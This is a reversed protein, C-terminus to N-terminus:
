WDSPEMFDDLESMSIIDRAQYRPHAASDNECFSSGALQSNVDCESFSQHPGDTKYVTNCTKDTDNVTDMYPTKEPSCHHVKSRQGIDPVTYKHIHTETVPQQTQQLIVPALTRHHPQYSQPYGHYGQFPALTEGAAADQSPTQQHANVHIQPQLPPQPRSTSKTSERVNLQVYKGTEPDFFTKMKVQVPVDVVFYQGSGLDQLVKRQTLPYSQPYTTSAVHYQTVPATHNAHHLTPSSHVDVIANPIGPHSTFGTAHPSAVPLSVPATAHASAVPLSSPGASHSSACSSSPPSSNLTHCPSSSSELRPIHVLSVPSSVHPSAVAHHSLLRVETSSSSPNSSMEQSRSDERVKSLEKKIRRTALRKAKLLAKESKPPVVPPKGLSRSVDSSFSCASEPRDGDYLGRHADALDVVSTTFSEVDESVTSIVSRSDDEDPAISRRTGPRHYPLPTSYNQSSPFTLTEKLAGLRSLGKDSHPTAASLRIKEQEEEAREAGMPSGVRFDGAFNKHFRPKVSKTFSSGRVTNDKVRFLSPKAGLAPSSTNSRPLSSAPSAPTHAGGPRPHPDEPSELGSPNSRQQSPLPSSLQKERCKRESEPSTIAYYQLADMRQAVQKEEEVQTTRDGLTEEEEERKEIRIADDTEKAERTGEKPTTQSEELFGTDEENLKKGDRPKVTAKVHQVAEREEEERQTGLWDEARQKESKREEMQQEAKEQEQIPYIMDDKPAEAEAERHKRKKEQIKFETQKAPRQEETRATRSQQEEETPSARGQQEQVARRQEEHSARTQEDQHVARSQQEKQFARREQAEQAARIQQEEQVARRQNEEQFARSRHKEQVARRQRQEETLAPKRKQDGMLNATKRQQEQHAATGRRDEQAARRQQGEQSLRKQQEEQHGREEEGHKLLQAKADKNIQKEEESQQVRAEEEIKIRRKETENINRVEQVTGIVKEKEAANVEKSQKANRGEEARRGAERQSDRRKKIENAISNREKARREVERQAERREEEALSARSNKIMHKIRVDEGRKEVDMGSPKEKELENARRQKTTDEHQSTLRNKRDEGTRGVTNKHRMDKKVKTPNTEEQASTLRSPGNEDFYPKTEGKSSLEEPNGLPNASDTSKPQQSTHPNRPRSVISSSSAQLDRNNPQHVHDVLRLSQTDALKVADESIQHKLHKTPLKNREQLHKTENDLSNDNTKEQRDKEGLKFMGTRRHEKVTIPFVLPKPEKSVKSSIETENPVSKEKVSLDQPDVTFVPRRSHRSQILPFFGEEKNPPFEQITYERDESVIVKLRAYDAIASIEPPHTSARQKPKSKVEPKEKVLTERTRNPNRLSQRERASQNEKHQKSNYIVQGAENLQSQIEPGSSKNSTPAEGAKRVKRNTDEDSISSSEGAKMKSQDMVSDPKGENCSEKSIATKTPIVGPLEATKLVADSADIDSTCNHSKNNAEAAGHVQFYDGEMLQVKSESMSKGSEDSSEPNGKQVQANDNNANVMNQQNSIKLSDAVKKEASVVSQEGLKDEVGDKMQKEDSAPSFGKTRDETYLTNAKEEHILSNLPKHNNAAVVNSPETTSRSPPQNGVMKLDDHETAAPVVRIAIRGIHVDSDTEGLPTEKYHHKASVHRHENGTLHNAPNTKYRSEPPTIGHRKDDLRLLRECDISGNQAPNMVVTTDDNMSPQTGQNMLMEAHGRNSDNTSNLGTTMLETIVHERGEATERIHTNKEESNNKVEDKKRTKGTENTCGKAEQATKHKCLGPQIDASREVPVSVTSLGGKEASPEQNHKERQTRRNDVNENGSSEQRFTTEAATFKEFVNDLIKEQTSTEQVNESYINMDIAAQAETVTPHADYVVIDEGKAEIVDSSFANGKNEETGSDTHCKDLESNSAEKQQVNLHKQTCDKMQGRSAPARRETLIIGTFEVSGNAVPAEAQAASDEHVTDCKAVKNETVVPKSSQTRVLSASLPPDEKKKKLHNNNLAINDKLREIQKGSIQGHDEEASGEKKPAQEKCKIPSKMASQNGEETGMTSSGTQKANIPTNEVYEHSKILEKNLVEKQSHDVFDSSTAASKVPITAPSPSLVSMAPATQVGPLEMQPKATTINSITSEQKKSVEQSPPRQRINTSQSGALPKNSTKTIFGDRMAFGREKMASIEKEAHAKIRSTLIEQKTQAREKLSLSRSDAVSDESQRHKPAAKDKDIINLKVQAEKKAGDEGTFVANRVKDSQEFMMKEKIKALEAKTKALETKVQEINDTGGRVQQAERIEAAPKAPSEQLDETLEPKAVEDKIQKLASPEDEEAEVKKDQSNSKQTENIQGEKVSEDEAVKTRDQEAKTKQDLTGELRIMEIQRSDEETQQTKVNEIRMQKGGLKEPQESKFGQRRGEETKTQKIKSQGTKESKALETKIHEGKLREEEANVHEDQAETIQKATIEERTNKKEDTEKEVSCQKKKTQEERCPDAQMETSQEGREEKGKKDKVREVKEQNVNKDQTLEEQAEDSEVKEPGTQGALILRASQVQSLEGQVDHEGSRESQSHQPQIHEAMAQGRVEVIQGHYRQLLDKNELAGHQQQGYHAPNEVTDNSFPANLGMQNSINFNVSETNHHATGDCVSKNSDAETFEIGATQPNEGTSKGRPSNLEEKMTGARECTQPLQPNEIDQSARQRWRHQSSVNSYDKKLGQHKDMNTFGRQATENIHQETKVQGELNERTQSNDVNRRPIESAAYPDKDRMSEANAAMVQKAPTVPLVDQELNQGNAMQHCPKFSTLGAHHVMESQMQFPQYTYESYNGRRETAPQSNLTASSSGPNHYQAAHQNSAANTSSSEELHSFLIEPDEFDPIDIVVDRAEQMSHQKAKQLTELGKFKSPSYTSKVRKRNDKLNFLLNTARTKYRSMRVDPTAGRSGARVPPHEVPQPSAATQQHIASTEVNHRGHVSPALPQSVNPLVPNLNNDFPVNEKGYFAEQQNTTMGTAINQKTMMKIKQQLAKVSSITDQVRRSMEISPSATSPRRTPLRNAGLSRTNKRHPYQGVLESECRKEVALAKQLMSTSHSPTSASALKTGQHAINREDFRYLGQPQAELSIDKYMPAEYWKPFQSCPVFGSVEREQFPFRNHDRWVKFPSLESHIFFNSNCSGQSSMSHERHSSGIFSPEPNMHAMAAVESSYLNTDQSSFLGASPFYNSKFQQQYSTSFESLERKISMLYSKDWSTEDNWEKFKGDLETGDQHGESNFARILSSVRSRSRRHQSSLEPAGNTLISSQEARLSEGQQSAEAFSQQFTASVRGQTREGYVAWHPDRQIGGEHMGGHIWDKGYQRVRFSFSEHAARKLDMRGRDERDCGQGRQSFAQQRDRQSCPSSSCPDTDNYVAEDGICLSRFARDTLNRVERDTEDLFSGGSSTDSYGGNSHKRHNGSKRGSRRKKVSNM